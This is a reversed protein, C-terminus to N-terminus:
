KKRRYRDSRYPGWPVTCRGCWMWGDLLRYRSAGPYLARAERYPMGEPIDYWETRGCFMCSVRGAPRPSRVPARPPRCEKQRARARIRSKCGDCVESRGDPGGLTPSFDDMPLWRGCERCMRTGRVEDGM